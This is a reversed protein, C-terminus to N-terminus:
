LTIWEGTFDAHRNLIDASFNASFILCIDPSETYLASPPVIPIHTGPTFKGQKLFSDDVVFAIDARTIGLAACTTTLQAPAGYGCVKQKTAKAVDLLARVEAKDEAIKVALRSIDCAAPTENAILEVAENSMQQGRGKRVTVRISGGQTPVREADTLSMGFGDFFKWLPLLSHYSLHEHYCVAYRGKAIMDPLYGCELVFKGDDALLDAVARTIGSLDDSHAFVNNAIVLDAKRGALNWNDLTSKGFFQRLTPVKNELEAINAINDAPDCGLVEFGAAKYQALLYGDNSGVEFIFGGAKPRVDCAFDDLHKRFVPSTSSRYPYERCFLREPNVVVPLQTHSCTVCRCLYLPFCDQPKDTHTLLENALPTEGLDLVETLVGSCLRCDFRIRYDKM